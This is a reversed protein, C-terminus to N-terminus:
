IHNRHLCVHGTYHVLFIHTESMWHLFVVRTKQHKILHSFSLRVIRWFASGTSHRFRRSVDPMEECTDREGAHVVSSSSAALLIMTNPSLKTFNTTPKPGGLFPLKKTQFPFSVGFIEPLDPNTFIIENPWISQAQATPDM